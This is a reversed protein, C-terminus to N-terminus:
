KRWLWCRPVTNVAGHWLRLPVVWSSLGQSCVHRAHLRLLLACCVFMMRRFLASSSADSSPHHYTKQQAIWGPLCRLNQRHGVEHSVAIFIANLFCLCGIYSKSSSSLRFAHSHVDHELLPQDVIIIGFILSIYCAAVFLLRPEPLYQPMTPVIRIMQPAKKMCTGFLLFPGLSSCRPSEFVMCPSRTRAFRFVMWVSSSSISGDLPKPLKSRLNPLWSSSPPFWNSSQVRVQLQKKNRSQPNTFTNM